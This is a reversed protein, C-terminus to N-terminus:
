SSDTASSAAIRFSSDWSLQLIVNMSQAALARERFQGMIPRGVPTIRAANVIHLRRTRQMLYLRAGLASM